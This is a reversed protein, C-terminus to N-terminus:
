AGAEVIATQAEADVQVSNMKTTVILLAGDAPQQIGHGTSQVAVGLGSASAFRVGAIIDQADYAVLILAPYHITSLNWGQRIRDYDPHDPTLVQGKVQQQLHAEVTMTHTFVM